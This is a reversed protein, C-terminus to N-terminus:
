SASPLASIISLGITRNWRAGCFVQRFAMEPTDGALKIPGGRRWTSPAWGVPYGTNAIRHDRTERELDLAADVVLGLHPPASPSARSKM